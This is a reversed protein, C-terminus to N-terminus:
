PMVKWESHAAQSDLEVLSALDRGRGVKVAKEYIEIALSLDSIGMGLSKFITVESNLSRLNGSEMIDALSRLRAWRVEEDRCFEILESSLKRAQSVCDVVVMDARELVNRALEFRGPVIAGV